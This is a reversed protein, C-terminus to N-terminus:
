SVTYVNNYTGDGSLKVSSSLNIVPRIGSSYYQINTFYLQGTPRVFVNFIQFGQLGSMSGPTITWYEENTYLYSNLNSSNSTMGAYVM